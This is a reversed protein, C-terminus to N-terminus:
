DGAVFYLIRWRGDQKEFGIRYGIPSWVFSDAIWGREGTALRIPYWTYGDADTPNAGDLASEVVQYTLSGLVEGSLSPESRIRVSEGVVVVHGFVDVEAPFGLFLYPASIIGGEETSGMALTRVFTSFFDDGPERVVNSGLWFRRIGEAGQEGGFSITADPSFAALVTATDRAAAASLLNARFAIFSPDRAGDDRPPLSAVQAFSPAATLTALLAFFALRM